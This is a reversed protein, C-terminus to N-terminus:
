PSFTLGCKFSYGLCVEGHSLRDLCNKFVECKISYEIVHEFMVLIIYALVNEGKMRIMSKLSNILKVHEIKAIVGLPHCYSVYPMEFSRSILNGLLKNLTIDNLNLM